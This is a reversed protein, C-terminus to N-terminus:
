SIFTIYDIISISLFFRSKLQVFYKILIFLIILLRRKGTIGFSKKAIDIYYGVFFAM